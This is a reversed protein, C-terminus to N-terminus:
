QSRVTTSEALEVREIEAALTGDAIGAYHKATTSVDAHGLLRSVHLLPMGCEIWRAGCSRRLGHFDVGLAVVARCAIVICDILLKM